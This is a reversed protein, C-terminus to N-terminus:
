REQGGLVARVATASRESAGQEVFLMQWLVLSVCAWVRFTEEQDRWTWGRRACRGLIRERLTPGDFCRSEVWLKHRTVRHLLPVLGDNFWQVLPSTFGVKDTRSLIQEPVLDRVADRLIRKSVGGYWKSDLPLACCYTVLRWDLFPLRVEVGHAMACRDVNHLISPLTSHHFADFLAATTARTDPGRLWPYGLLLEDAGHGDLSVPVCLRRFERYHCWVSVALSGTVDDLAWATDPVHMLAEDSSFELFHARSRLHEAMASAYRHEDLAMGPFVVSFTHQWQPALRRASPSTRGVEHVVAAVASSDIGGSLSTGMPVDSRMRLRVADFLLERFQEVQVRYTGPVSPLHDETSWWRSLQVSDSATTLLEGPLLQEVGRMLTQRCSGRYRYSDHVAFRAVDEDLEPRFDELAAFAKMESAFAFRRGRLFYLPKVGFRDRALLLRQDELDLVAFAWMGNFRLLCEEKWEAFAAAVVETDSDTEFVRGLARLEDRLEIFNYIEGNYVLWYRGQYLLPCDADRSRDLIALRTQGLAYEGLVVVSCADPGRHRLSATLRAIPRSDQLHGPTFIGAIGCM